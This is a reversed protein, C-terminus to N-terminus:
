PCPSSNVRENGTSDQGLSSEVGGSVGTVLYFFVHGSLPSEADEVQNDTLGCHRDASQNEQPDSTYIGTAQLFDLSNRYSNWSDFGSEVQWQLVFPENLFVYILGDNLDCMDGEGDQDFDTQGPNSTLVCNDNEDIVYDNDDDPDVCDKIGDQDTDIFGEDTMGDCDNDLSDCIEESSGEYPDCSNTEIGSQCTLTGCNGNCVGEGCCVSNPSYDEDTSGDCDDDVNNCTQDDPMPQSCDQGTKFTWLPSTTVCTGDDLTVYWEYETRYSLNEWITSAASDSPVNNLTDIIQFEDAGMPYALTFQSNYDTEFVNLCPSYTYAYISNASPKFVYYRLYGSGGQPRHQYNQLMQHVPDGCDNASTLQAEGNPWHSHGNVVMFINCNSRILKEWIDQGSNGGPRYNMTSPTGYNNLYDHTSVIARREPYSKLIADAWNLIDDTPEWELHVIIFDLSGVSFLQYSNKNNRYGAGYWSENEYRTAPFYRDYYKAVGQINMDHNGPLIGYRVIADLISMSYNANRWEYKFCDGTDVIDGVHTVFAINLLDKSDAIWQTQCTFTKPYTRSYYQTDPLVVITFEQKELPTKRGYFTVTMSDYDPDAVNVTLSPSISLNRAGDAPSNLVPKDPCNSGALPAGDTWEWGLGIITGSVNNGSSDYVVAGYGENLGWRAALGPASIIEASMYRQIDRYERAYSWVRVEDLVGDFHGDAIGYSNKTAALAAHQISDYRPTESIEIETELLGNLYLKLRLGDYTLAVHYWKNKAIPTRGIVPHNEGTSYDEFDGFLVNDTERIGLFYNLDDESGDSHDGGKTVLPIVLTGDGGISVSTGNGVKKFWTEITYRKLGM